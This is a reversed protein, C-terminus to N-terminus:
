ERDLAFNEVSLMLNVLKKSRERSFESCFLSSFLHGFKAQILFQGFKGVSLLLFVAPSLPTPTLFRSFKGVDKISPGKPKKGFCDYSDVSPNPM